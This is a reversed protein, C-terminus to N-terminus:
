DQFEIEMEDYRHSRDTTKNTAADEEVEPEFDDNIVNLDIVFGNEKEEEAVFDGQNIEDKNVEFDTKLKENTFKAMDDLGRKNLKFDVFDVSPSTPSLSVTKGDCDVLLVKEKYRLLAPEFASEARDSTEKIKAGAVELYTCAAKGVDAINKHQRVIRLAKEESVKKGNKEHFTWGDGYNEGTLEVFGKGGLLVATRKGDYNTAECFSEADLCIHNDVYEDIPYFLSPEKENVTPSDPEKDPVIFHEIKDHLSSQVEPSLSNETLTLAPNKKTVEDVSIGKEPRASAKEDETANKEVLKVYAEKGLMLRSFIASTIESVQHAAKAFFDKLRTFFSQKEPTDITKTKEIEPM